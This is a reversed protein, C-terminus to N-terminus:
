DSMDVGTRSPVTYVMMSLSTADHVAKMHMYIGEQTPKVYPPTTCMLSNVGAGEALKAIEVAKITSSSCVGAIIPIRGNAFLVAKKLLDEYESGEFSNFEGTSGAVVIADIKASIQKEILKEFTDFDI